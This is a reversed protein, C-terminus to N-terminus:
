LQGSEVSDVRLLPVHAGSLAGNAGEGPAVANVVGSLQAAFEAFVHKGDAPPPAAALGAGAECIVATEAVRETVACLQAAAKAPSTRKAPPEAAAYGDPLARKRGALPAAAPPPAVSTVFDTDGRHQTAATGTTASDESGNDPSGAAPATPAAALAGGGGSVGHTTGEDLNVATSALTPGGGSNVVREEKKVVMEEKVVVTEEKKM